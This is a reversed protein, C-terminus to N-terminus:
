TNRLADIMADRMAVALASVSFADVKGLAYRKGGIVAYVAYTKTAHGYVFGLDTIDAM